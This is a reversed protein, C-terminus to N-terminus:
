PMNQVARCHCTVHSAHFPASLSPINFTCSPILDLTKGPISTALEGARLVDEMFYIDANLTDRGDGVWVTLTTRIHLGQEGGEHGICATTLIQDDPANMSYFGGLHPSRSHVDYGPPYSDGSDRSSQSCIRAGSDQGINQHLKYNPAANKYSVNPPILIHCLQTTTACVQARSLWAVHPSDVHSWHASLRNWTSDCM